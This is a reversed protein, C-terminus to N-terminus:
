QTGARRTEYVLRMEVRWNDCVPINYTSRKRPDSRLTLCDGFNLERSLRVVTVVDWGKKLPIM